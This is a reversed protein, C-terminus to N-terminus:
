SGLDAHILFPGQRQLGQQVLAVLEEATAARGGAVGMGAALAVWDLEPGSLSTLATSGSRQRMAEVQVSM